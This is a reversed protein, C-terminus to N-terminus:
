QVAKAFQHESRASGIGRRRGATSQSSSHCPSATPGLPQLKDRSSLFSCRTPHLLHRHPGTPTLPAADKHNTTTDADQHTEPTFPSPGLRRLYYWNSHRVSGIASRIIPKGNDHSETSLFSSPYCLAARRERCCGRTQSMTPCQVPTNAHNHWNPSHRQATSTARYEKSSRKASVATSGVIGWARPRRRKKTPAVAHHANVSRAWARFCAGAGIWASRAIRVQCVQALSQSVHENITRKRPIRPHRSELRV